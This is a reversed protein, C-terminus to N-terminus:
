ITSLSPATITLPNSHLASPSSPSSCLSPNVPSFPVFIVCVEFTRLDRVALWRIGQQRVEPDQLHHRIPTPSSCSGTDASRGDLLIGCITLGMWKDMRNGLGHRIWRCVTMAGCLVWGMYGDFNLEDSTSFSLLRVGALKSGCDGCKPATALKKIHHYVLVGGPTKVVRRRNSTTNYPQRKRLTVRQAMASETGINLDLDPDYEASPLRPIHKLPVAITTPLTTHDPYTPHPHSSRTSKCALFVFVLCFILGDANKRRLQTHHTCNVLCRRVKPRSTTSAPATAQRPEEISEVTYLWEARTAPSSYLEEPFM